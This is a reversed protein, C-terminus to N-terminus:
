EVPIVRKVEIKYTIPIPTIFSLEQYAKVTVFSTNNNISINSEINEEKLMEKLKNLDTYQSQWMNITDVVTNELESRKIMTIGINVAGILLMIIIPLILVFEILAQGKKDKIM